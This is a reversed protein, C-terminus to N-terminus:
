DFDQLSASVRLIIRADAATITDDGNVNAAVSASAGLTEIDASARLAKRADAATVEGNGDIDGKVCVYYNTVKGDTDRFHVRYGTCIIDTSEIVNGGKGFVTFLDFNKFNNGFKKVTQSHGVNYILLNDYDVQVSTDDTTKLMYYGASTYNSSNEAVYDIVTIYEALCVTCTYKVQASVEDASIKLIEYDDSYSHATKETMVSVSNCGCLNCVKHKLGMESCTAEKTVVWDEGYDHANIDMDIETVDTRANCHICYKSKEGTSVCTPEADVIFDGYEHADPEIEVPQVYMPTDCVICHKSSSGMNTCNPAVDIFIEDGPVHNGTAPVPTTVAVNNCDDCYTVIEGELACTPAVTIKSKSSDSVSHKTTDYTIESHNFQEGCLACIEAQQGKLSCTAEVLIVYQGSGEHLNEDEPVVEEDVHAGCGKCLHYRVGSEICTAKSSYKWESTDVDTHNNPDKESIIMDKYRCVTCTRYKTGEKECNAVTIVKYDGDFVHNGDGCSGYEVLADDTVTIVDANNGALVVGALMIVAAVLFVYLRKM